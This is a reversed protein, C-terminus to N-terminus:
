KNKEINVANSAITAVGAVLSGIGWISYGLLLGTTGALILGVGVGGGIVSGIRSTKKSPHTLKEVTNMSKRLSEQSIKKTAEMLKENYHEM